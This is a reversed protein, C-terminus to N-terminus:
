PKPWPYWQEVVPSRRKDASISVKIEQPEFGEPPVLKGSINQFYKFKVAVPGGGQGALEILKTKGQEVGKLTFGATGNFEKSHQLAQILVLKYRVERGAQLSAAFDQIRVGSKGDEPSIISRYFKIEKRLDMIQNNSTELMGRLEQYATKDIQLQREAQALAASLRKNADRLDSETKVFQELRAQLTKVQDKSQAQGWQYAGYLALVFVLLGASIMGVRVHAAVRPRIIISDTHKRLM